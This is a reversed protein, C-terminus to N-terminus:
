WKYRQLYQLDDDDTRALYVTGTGFGLLRTRKPLVLRSVLRGANDIVDYTPPADAPVHKQVLIQGNPAAVVSGVFPGKFDPFTTPGDEPPPGGTRVSRNGNENTVMFGTANRRAERWATKDAETVRVRDYRIPAGSVTRGNVIWDVHYDRARVVAVNGTSTVAYSDSSGFPTASGGDEDTVRVEGGGGGGRQIAPPPAASEDASGGYRGHQDQSGLPHDTDHRNDGASRQRVKSDPLPLLAPGPRRHGPRRRTRLRRRPGGRGRRQRAEARRAGEEQCRRVM